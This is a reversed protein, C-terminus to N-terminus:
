IYNDKIEWNIKNKTMKAWAVDKEIYVNRIKEGVKIINRNSNM